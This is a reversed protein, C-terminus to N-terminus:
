LYGFSKLRRLVEREEAASYSRDDDPPLYGLLELTRLTREAAAGGETEAVDVAVEAREPPEYDPRGRGAVHVEIFREVLVRIDDRAARSPSPVAVVVTVGQHVLLAAAVAACRERAPGVLADIGRTRGDILEHAIRRRALRATLAEAVRAVTEDNAGSVWVAVGDSM